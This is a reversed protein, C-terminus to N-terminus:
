VGREAPLRGSKVAAELTEFDKQVVDAYAVAWDAVAEDFRESDGLYGAIVNAAPSQSHARALLAGCLAAYQTFQGAKFLSLDFSGKMDRFQRVYYDRGNAEFHGLFPDSAAQLIRQGSIVRFGNLGKRDGVAQDHIISPRKGYTDLVSAQAEKIQLFFPEHRPGMMLQIYCHTGVSGVGVVRLVSDISTFQSLLVAIDARVTKLYERLLEATSEPTLTPDHRMIPPEEVICLHGDSYEFEIKDLMRDSTNREAKSRTQRILQQTKSDLTAQLWSTEGRYYYRHLAQMDMMMTITKRYSKVSALAIDKATRSRIGADLAGIFASAALRKVDWEWPANSAEDFDNLDFILTREPTAFLGFNSVHADGCSIVEVDTCPADALDYAMMAASGRYLSFPSQLMRGVRVPVLDPIRTANQDEMIAIVDRDPLTLDAHRRRPMKKRLAVGQARMEEALVVPRNSDM